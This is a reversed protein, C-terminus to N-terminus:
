TLRVLAGPQEGGDAPTAAPVHRALTTGDLTGVPELRGPASALERVGAPGAHLVACRGGGDGVGLLLADGATRTRAGDGARAAVPSGVLAPRPHGARGARGAVLPETVVPEPPQGGVLGVARVHAVARRGV